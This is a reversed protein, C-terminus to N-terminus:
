PREFTGDLRGRAIVKGELARLLGALDPRGDFTVPQGLAFLQFSYTHPGHGALAAPGLYGVRQRYGHGLRMSGTDAGLAGEALGPLSPSIGTAILHVVPRRLPADADEMLLVLEVAREPVFSWDLPPSLNEGVGEKAYKVPIPGGPAFAPSYLKLTDPVHALTPHNWTLHQEGAHVRRLLRGIFREIM